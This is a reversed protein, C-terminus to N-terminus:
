PLDGSFAKELEFSVIIEDIVVTSEWGFDDEM